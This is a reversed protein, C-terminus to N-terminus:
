LQQKPGYLDDTYRSIIIAISSVGRDWYSKDIIIVKKTANALIRKM